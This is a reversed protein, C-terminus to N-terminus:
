MDCRVIFLSLLEPCFRTTLFTTLDVDLDPGLRTWHPGTFTHWRGNSLAFQSPYTLKFAMCNEYANKKHSWTHVVQCYSIESGFPYAKAM